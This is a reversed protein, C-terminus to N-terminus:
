MLAEAIAQELPLAWGESWLAEFSPGGLAARLNALATDRAPRDIPPLPAGMAERIAVASSWLRVARLANGQAGAVTALGEICAVCDWKTGVDRFVALSERYIRAAGAVEGQDALVDAQYRRCLAIWFGAEVEPGLRLGEALLLQAQALNGAYRATVGLHVHASSMDNASGLERALVLQEELLM